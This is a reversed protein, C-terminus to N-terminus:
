TLKSAVTSLYAVSPAASARLKKREAQWDFVTKLMGISAGVISGLLAQGPGRIYSMGVAGISGSVLANNLSAAIGPWVKDRSAAFEAQYNQFEARLGSLVQRGGLLWDQATPATRLQGLRAEVDAIFQKRITQTQYRFEIIEDFAIEHLRDEPLVHSLMTAAIDVTLDRVADDPIPIPTETGEVCRAAKMLLLRHHLKSDTVPAVGLQEAIDLHVAIGIASGAAYSLSWSSLDNGEELLHGRLDPTNKITDIFTGPLKPRFMQWSHRGGIAISPMQFKQPNSAVTLWQSDRLDSIASATTSIKDHTVFRIPDIRKVCGHDVLEPLAPHVDRYRAFRADHSELEEFLKTRWADEDVPDVFSIEDFVLLMQKLSASNICRSFPYYLGALM